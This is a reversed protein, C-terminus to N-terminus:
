LSVQVCTADSAASTGVGNYAKVIFCAQSSNPVASIITDAAFVVSPNQPNWDSADRVLVKLLTNTTGISPGTYITYGTPADSNAAWSVTVSFSSATVTATIPDSYLSGDNVVLQIIYEGSLDATFTPQASNANDFFASSGSPRSIFAWQFTLTDNNGDSSGSGNAQVTNGPTAVQPVAITAVPAINGLAATITITDSTQIVGDSAVLEIIYAGVLDPTFGANLQGTNTLNTASGAPISVFSWAYSLTDGDPDSASGALTVGTGVEANFNAGANALPPTNSAQTVTISVSNSTQDTGDFATLVVTYTGVVDPTFTANLQGPNALSVTSGAPTSTFSWATTLADGDPDSAAGALTVGSGLAVSLNTGANVLPSSNGAQNATITISNSTQDIGDSAILQVTYTGALDPSFTTNLQTPNTLSVTSGTPTSTFSWTTSLADGDPDSVSGTLTVGSGLAVSLNAGPNVLPPTNSNGSPASDSGGGGGCGHLIGALLLVSFIRLYMSIFNRKSNNKSPQICNDVFQEFYFSISTSFTERSLM